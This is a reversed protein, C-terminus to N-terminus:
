FPIPLFYSSNALSRNHLDRPLAAPLAVLWFEASVDTTQCVGLVEDRLSTIHDQIVTPVTGLNLISNETIVFSSGPYSVNNIQKIDQCCSFLTPLPCKETYDVLAPGEDSPDNIDWYGSLTFRCSNGGSSAITVMRIKATIAFHHKNVRRQPRTNPVLNIPFASTQLYSQSIMLLDM